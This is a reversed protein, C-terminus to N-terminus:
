YILLMSRYHITICLNTVDVIIRCNESKLM